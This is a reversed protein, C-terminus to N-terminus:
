GLSANNTGAPAAFNIEALPNDASGLNTGAVLNTNDAVVPRFIITGQGSANTTKTILYNNHAFLAIGNNGFILNGIAANGANFDTASSGINFQGLRVSTSYNGM